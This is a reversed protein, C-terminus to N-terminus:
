KDNARAYTRVGLRMRLCLDMAVFGSGTAGSALSARGTGRRHWGSWACPRCSGMASRVPDPTARVARIQGRGGVGSQGEPNRGQVFYVDPWPVRRRVYRIGTDRAELQGHVVQVHVGPQIFPPLWSEFARGIGDSMATNSRSWGGQRTTGGQAIKM